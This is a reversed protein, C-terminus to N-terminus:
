RRFRASRRRPGEPQSWVEPDEGPLPPSGRIRWGAGSRTLQGTSALRHLAATVTPRRSGIMTAIVEHTLALPLVVGDPSLEGWREGLHWFLMLVQRDVGRMGSIAASGALWRSRRLARDFLVDAILPWRLLRSAFDGDLVALRLRQTVRFTVASFSPQLETWPRLLDGRALFEVSRSRAVTLERLLVGGLLLYGLHARDPRELLPSWYGPSVSLGSAILTRTATRLNEGSLAERLEPDEELLVIRGLRQERAHEPPVSKLSARADSLANMPHILRSAKTVSVRDGDV